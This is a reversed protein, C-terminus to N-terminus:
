EVTNFKDLFEEVKVRFALSSRAPLYDLVAQKWGSLGSKYYEHKLVIEDAYEDKVSQAWNLADAVSHPIYDMYEETYM